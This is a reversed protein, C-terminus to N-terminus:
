FIRPVRCDDSRRVQVSGDGNIIAIHVGEMRDFVFMRMEGIRVHQTKAISAMWSLVRKVNPLIPVDASVIIEGGHVVNLQYEDNPM